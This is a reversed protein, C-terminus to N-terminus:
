TYRRRREVGSAETIESWVQAVLCRLQRELEPHEPDDIKRVLKEVTGKFQFEPAEVVGGKDAKKWFGEEILYDVCSGIEDIGTRHYIPVTVKAKRGTYRSREISIECLNGIHRRKADAHGGTLKVDKTLQKKISSWLEVQAYFTLAHGGSRTQDDFSFPGAGVNDRTQAIIIVISKTREIKPVLQRVFQSNKKAKGDGYSGKAEVGRAHAKKLELYKKEEENSSLVDMSDLVYIVPSRRMADDLAFYFDEVFHSPTPVGEVWGPPRIRAAMKPGFFEALNMQAGYEGGDYILQYDDYRKSYAAEAMSALSFFTKGSNSDGVFLYLGGPVFGVGPRGTCALNLLTSGTSLGGAFDPPEIARKKLLKQKVAEVEADEAKGKKAM